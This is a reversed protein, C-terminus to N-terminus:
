DLRKKPTPVTYITTGDTVLGVIANVLLPVHVGATYTFTNFNILKYYFCGASLIAFKILNMVLRTAFLAQKDRPHLFGPAQLSTVAEGISIAGICRLIHLSVTSSQPSSFEAKLIQSPYAMLAVGILLMLWADVRLHNNLRINHQPYFHFDHCRLLQILNGIVWLATPVIGYVVYTQHSWESVSITENTGPKTMKIQQGLTYSAVQSMLLISGAVVRSTMLTIQVTADRTERTRFWAFSTGLYIGGFLRALLLHIDTPEKTM